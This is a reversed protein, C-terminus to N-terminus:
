VPSLIQADQRLSRREAPILIAADYHMERAAAPRLIQADSRYQPEDPQAVFTLILSQLVSHISFRLKGIKTPAALMVPVFFTAYAIGCLMKLQM